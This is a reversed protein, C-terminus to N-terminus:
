INLKVHGLVRVLRSGGTESMGDPPGVGGLGDTFIFCPLYGFIYRLSVLSDTVM